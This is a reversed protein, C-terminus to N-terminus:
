RRKARQIAQEIAWDLDYIGLSHAHERLKIYGRIVKGKEPEESLALFWAQLKLHDKRWTDDGPM